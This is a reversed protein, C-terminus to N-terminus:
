KLEVVARDNDLVGPKWLMYQHGEEAPVEFVIAGSVKGGTVLDGSDLTDLAIAITPDLVQGSATQVRFDYPNYPQTSDSGNELTVNVVIYTKGSEATEYESLSAKYEASAVTLKVDGITGWEGLAFEVDTKQKDARDNFRYTKEETSSGTGTNNTSDGGSSANVIVVLVIIAIIVTLVKHRRFWNGEKASAASM